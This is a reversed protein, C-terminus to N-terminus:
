KEEFQTDWFNKNEAQPKNDGGADIPEAGYPRNNYQSFMSGINRDIQTFDTYNRKTNSSASNKPAFDRTKGTIIKYIAAKHVPDQMAGYLYENVLAKMMKADPQTITGYEDKLVDEPIIGNDRFHRYMAGYIYGSKDDGVSVEGVDDGFDITLAYKPTRDSTHHSSYSIRTRKELSDRDAKAQDEKWKKDEEREQKRLALEDAREAARLANGRREKAADEQKKRLLDMRAQYTKVINQRQADMADYRSALDRPSVAAGGGAKIADVIVHGLEGMSQAFQRRQLRQEEQEREKKAEDMLMQTFRADIKAESTMADLAANTWPTSVGANSATATSGQVEKKDENEGM